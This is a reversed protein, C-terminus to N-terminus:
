DSSEGSIYGNEYDSSKPDFSSVVIRLHSYDAFHCSSQWKSIKDQTHNGPVNELYVFPPTASSELRSHYWKRVQFQDLEEDYTVHVGKLLDECSTM